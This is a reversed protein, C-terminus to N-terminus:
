ALHKQKKYVKNDVTYIVCAIGAILSFLIAGDMSDDYITGIIGAIIMIIVAAATKGNEHM